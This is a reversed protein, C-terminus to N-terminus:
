KGDGQSLIGALEAFTMVRLMKDIRSCKEKSLFPKLARLLESREDSKGSRIIHPSAETKQSPAENQATIGSVASMVTKLMEPDSLLANLKNSIDTDM